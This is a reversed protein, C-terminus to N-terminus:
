LPFWFTRGDARPCLLPAVPEAGQQRLNTIMGECYRLAPVDFTSSDRMARAVQEHEDPNLVDFLPAVAAATFAASLKFLLERRSVSPNLRQIWMVIVQALETFDIAQLRRVLPAAARSLVPPMLAASENRDPQVLADLESALTRGAPVAALINDVATHMSPDGPTDLHRFDPLDGLLDSVACEYLEALRSLNDFTPAHGTSGPWQEWLSFAKFTKLEDPWRKNWEDAAQRQSWGHAYRLAIRANLRYRQQLETAVEVWSAGSTRLSGVLQERQQKESRPKPM